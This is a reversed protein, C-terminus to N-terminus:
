IEDAGVVVHLDVTASLNEPKPEAVWGFKAALREAAERADDYSWFVTTRAYQKSSAGIAEVDFGLEALRDAIKDDAEASTTANLIQMSMGATILPPPKPSAKSPSPKQRASASAEQTPSPEPSVPSSSAPRPRASQPPRAALPSNIQAKGILADVGVWVAAGIIAAVVAWPLFWGLVSRYFPWQERSSHRGM